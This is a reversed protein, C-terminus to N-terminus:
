EVHVTKLEGSHSDDPIPWTRFIDAALDPFAHGIICLEGPDTDANGAAPYDKATHNNRM